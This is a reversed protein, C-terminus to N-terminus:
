DLIIQRIPNLSPLVKQEPLLFDVTIWEIDERKMSSIPTGDEHHIIIVGQFDDIRMIDNHTFRNSDKLKGTVRM